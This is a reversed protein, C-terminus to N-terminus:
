FDVSADVQVDANADSYGTMITTGKSTMFGGQGGSVEKLDELEIEKALNYALIRQVNSM